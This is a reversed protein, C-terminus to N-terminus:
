RLAAGLASYCCRRTGLRRSWPPATRRRDSAGCLRWQLKIRIGVKGNTCKGLPVSRCAGARRRTCRDGAVAMTRRWLARSGAPRHGSSPAISGGTWRLRKLVQLRGAENGPHRKRRARGTAINRRAIRQTSASAPGSYLPSLGLTANMCFHTISVVKLARWCALGGEEGLLQM